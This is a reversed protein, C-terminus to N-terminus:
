KSRQLKSISIPSLFYHNGAVWRTAREGKPWMCAMMTTLVAM